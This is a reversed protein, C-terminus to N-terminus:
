RAFSGLLKGEFPHLMSQQTQIQSPAGPHAVAFIFDGSWKGKELEAEAEAAELASQAAL